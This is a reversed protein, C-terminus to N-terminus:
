RQRKQEQKTVLDHGVRCGWLSYSQWAGRDMRNGLCSYQLPNGNGERPPRGLGPILGADGSSCASERSSLWLHFGGSNGRFQGLSSMGRDEAHGLGLHQLGERSCPGSVSVALRRALSESDINIIQWISILCLQPKRRPFVIFGIQLFGPSVEM